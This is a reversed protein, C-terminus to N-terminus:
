DVPSTCTFICSCMLFVSKFFDCGCACVAIFVTSLVSLHCCNCGTMNSIKMSIARNQDHQLPTPNIGLRTKRWEIFFYFKMVFPKKTTSPPILETVHNTSASNECMTLCCLTSCFSNIMLQLYFVM